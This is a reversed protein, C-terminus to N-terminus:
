LRQLVQLRHFSEGLNYNQGRAARMSYQKLYEVFEDEMPDGIQSKHCALAALKIDYVNGVDRLYNPEETQWLLVEKVKHLQLGKEQLDPYTNPALAFPWVADMVVRGLVRHDRNSLYRQYPDCTVVVEPRYALILELIEKRLEPTDELTLDIHGLFKVEKIGLVKAAALQEQERMKALREPKMQPDSSGKDGNTCIVLVIEKGERTMHAITGGMGMEADLPHPAFALMYVPKNNL